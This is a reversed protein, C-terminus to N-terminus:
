PVVSRFFIGAGAIVLLLGYLRWYTAKHSSLATTGGARLWLVTRNTSDGVGILLALGDIALAVGVVLGVGRAVWSHIGLAGGVLGWFILGGLSLWFWLLARPVPGRTDQHNGRFINLMM